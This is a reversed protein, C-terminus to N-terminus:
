FVYPLGVAIRGLKKFLSFTQVYGFGIISANINLNQVPSNLGSVVDGGSFTYALQTAHLGVPLVSYSRPEMEQADASLSFSILLISILAIKFM